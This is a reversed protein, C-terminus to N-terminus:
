EAIVANPRVGAYRHFWWESPLPWPNFRCGALGKSQQMMVPALRGPGPCSRHGHGLWHGTEHNVVMHRYERIPRHAANWAPSAFKWRDQNIIVFRGVRCSWQASCASSFRPVLRAESLVLTFDGGQAVRRFRVGASPWGRPDDYTEQAQASFVALSTTIRGRTEVHYTVLRRTPVRHGIPPTAVSAASTTRYGERSVRVRVRIRTGVDDATLRYRPGRAGPIPQGGRLWQYGITTPRHDWLGATATLVQTYRALGAVAPPEEATLDAKRVRPTAASDLSVTVGTDDTAIVRVTMRAGLDAVGLRYWRGTQDRVPRDDRLWQYAVTVGPSWDGPDAILPQGFVPDGSISPPVTNVPDAARHQGPATAALAPAGLLAATLAVVVAFSRLPERLGM